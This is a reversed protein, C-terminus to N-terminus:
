AAHKQIVIKGPSIFIYMIFQMSQFHLMDVNWPVLLLTGLPFNRACISADFFSHKM